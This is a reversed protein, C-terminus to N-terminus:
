KLFVEIEEKATKGSPMKQKLGGHSWYAKHRDRPALGNSADIWFFWAPKEQMAWAGMTPFEAFTQPFENKQSLIFQDCPTGTVKAVHERLLPYLDIPFVTPHRCMTYWEPHRGLAKAVVDRWQMCDSVVGDSNKLSDYTRVVYHPKGDSFYDLPTTHTHYICDPDLHMVHTTGKPVYKEAEFITVMHHLMGKDKVEDFTRIVTGKPGEKLVKLFVENGKHPVVVTVGSFGHAYKKLAKLCYKLWPLDKKYTSIMIQVKLDKPVEQPPATAQDVVDVEVNVNATHDPVCHETTGGSGWYHEELRDILTGDKCRHHIACRFDIRHLMSEATPFTVIGANSWKKMETAPDETWHHQIIHNANHFHKGKMIDASMAVDFASTTANMANNSYAAVVPPYVGVGNMHGMGAVKHGMFPKGGLKYEAALIELWDPRLPTADPEMWLWPTNGGEFFYAVYRCANQFAINQPRPWAGTVASYKTVWVRNFFREANEKIELVEHEPTAGDYSLLCDYKCNQTLKNWFELNKSALKSDRKCFPIVVLFECDNIKEM